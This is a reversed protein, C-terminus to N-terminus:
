LLGSLAHSVDDISRVHVAQLGATQAVGVNEATDDFFLIRGPAVGLDFLLADIDTM